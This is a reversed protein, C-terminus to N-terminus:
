PVVSDRDLDDGRHVIRVFHPVATRSHRVPLLHFTWLRAPLGGVRSSKELTNQTRIKRRPQSNRGSVNQDGGRAPRAMNEARSKTSGDHSTGERSFSAHWCTRSATFKQRWTGRRCDRSRELRPLM